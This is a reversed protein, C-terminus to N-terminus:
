TLNIKLTLEIIGPPYISDLLTIVPQYDEDTPPSIQCNGGYFFWHSIFEMFITGFTSIKVVHQSGALFVSVISCRLFAYASFIFLSM